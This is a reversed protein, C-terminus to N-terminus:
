SKLADRIRAASHGRKAKAEAELDRIVIARESQSLWKASKPLEDLYFFAAIGLLVTPLGEILFLWQWGQLGYVGPLSRMIWGSIPGGILGSIPISMMFLSTLHARRHAPVWLTIYYLIGPFFGAEFVGLLLRATYLALAFHCIRHSRFVLGVTGHDSAPDKQHRDAGPYSQESVRM